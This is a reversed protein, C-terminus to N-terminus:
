TTEHPTATVRGIDASERSHTVFELGRAGNLDFISSVGRWHKLKGNARVRCSLPKDNRRIGVLAVGPEFGTWEFQL